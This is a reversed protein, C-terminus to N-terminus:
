YISNVENALVVAVKESKNGYINDTSLTGRGTGDKLDSEM